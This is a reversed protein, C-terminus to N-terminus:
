TQQALVNSQDAIQWDQPTADEIMEKPTYPLKASACSPSFTKCGCFLPNRM